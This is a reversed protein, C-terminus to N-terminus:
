PNEGAIGDLSARLEELQKVVDCLIDNQNTLSEAQVDIRVAQSNLQYTIDLIQRSARHAHARAASLERELAYIREELTKIPM